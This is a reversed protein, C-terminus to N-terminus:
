QCISPGALSITKGPVWLYGTGRIAGGIAILQFPRNTFIEGYRRETPEQEVAAVKVQIVM